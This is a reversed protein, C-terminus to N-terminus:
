EAMSFTASSFSFPWLYVGIKPGLEVHVQLLRKRRASFWHPNSLLWQNHGFQWCKCCTFDSQIKKGFGHIMLIIKLCASITSWIRKGPMHTQKPHSLSPSRKAAIVSLDELKSMQSELVLLDCHNSELMLSGKFTSTHDLVPGCRAM